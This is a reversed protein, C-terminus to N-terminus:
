AGERLTSGPDVRSLKSATHLSAACGAAVTVAIALAAYAAVTGTGPALYPLKLSTEILTTFPFVALAGLLVGCVAGALSCLATEKLIM